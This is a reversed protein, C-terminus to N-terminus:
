AITARTVTYEKGEEKVEEVKAIDSLCATVFNKYAINSRCRFKAVAGFRIIVNLIAELQQKNYGRLMEHDIYGKLEKNIREASEYMTM